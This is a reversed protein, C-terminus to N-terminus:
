NYADFDEQRAFLAIARSPGSLAVTRTSEGLPSRTTITYTGSYFGDIWYMDMDLHAYSVFFATQLASMPKKSLRTGNLRLETTGKPVLVICGFNSTLYEAAPATTPQVRWKGDINEVYVGALREEGNLTYVVEFHHWRGEQKNTETIRFGRSVNVGSAKMLSIFISRSDGINDMFVNEIQNYAKGYNGRAMANMYRKMVAEPRGQFSSITSIVAILIVFVFLGASILPIKKKLAATQAQRKAVAEPSIGKGCVVCFKHSDFNASRCFPCKFENM